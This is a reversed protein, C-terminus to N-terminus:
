YKRYRRLQKERRRAEWLVYLVSFIVLFTVTARFLRGETFERIQQLLYLFESRSVSSTTILDTSGLIEDGLTVTVTGCIQGAQVPAALSEDFTTYSIKIDKEPDIDTPLYRIITETPVLTVHDVTSSLTVPIEAIRTSASLIETYKHSAFAWDLLVKANQYSWSVGDETEEANMVVCLYTLDDRQAASVICYGAQVTYGANLGIAGSYLYRNDYFKSLQSNRNFLNRYDSKNTADMVYQQVSTIEIFGPLNYAYKAIVATDAATTVMADSHMGTPNTYYTNYAGIFQAKENMMEVFKAVSGGVTVALVQAADNAGNVLLAHLMDKVRVTEGVKLGINNGVVGEKMAATVTILADPENGLAEIALIGTMLKVTSAPYIRKDTEYELLVTDNEFNYLYASAAHEVPPPEAAYSPCLLSLAASALLALLGSQIRQFLKRM